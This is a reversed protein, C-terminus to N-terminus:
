SIIRLLREIDSVGASRVLTAIQEIKRWDLKKTTAIKAIKEATTTDLGHKKILYNVIAKVYEETTTYPTIHIITLRSLLATAIEHGARKRIEEISNATAIVKVRVKKQERSGAHVKSVSQRLPDVISLLVEYVDRRAKDLEDFVVLKVKGTKELLLERLGAGTLEPGECSIYICEDGLSNCLIKCLLSKASAPPGVLLVYIPDRSKAFVNKIFWKVDGLNGTDIIEDLSPCPFSLDIEEQLKRIRKELEWESYRADIIKEEGRRKEEWLAEIIPRAQKEAFGRDLVTRFFLYAGFLVLLILFFFVIPAAIDAGSITYGGYGYYPYTYNYGSYM